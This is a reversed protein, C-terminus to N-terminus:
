TLQFICPRSQDSFPTTIHPSSSLYQFINSDNDAILMLSNRPITRLIESLHPLHVSLLCVVLTQNVPLVINESLEYLSMPTIDQVLLDLYSYTISNIDLLDDNFIALEFAFLIEYLFQLNEYFSIYNFRLASSILGSYKRLSSYRRDLVSPLLENFLSGSQNIIMNFFKKPTPLLKCYVTKNISLRSPKSYESVLSELESYTSFFSTKAGLYSYLSQQATFPTLRYALIRTNTIAAPIINNLGISTGLSVYIFASSSALHSLWHPYHSFRESSLKNLCVPSASLQKYFRYRKLHTNNNVAPFYIQSNGISTLQRDALNEYM